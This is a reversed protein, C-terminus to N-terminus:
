EHYFAPANRRDVNEPNVKDPQQVGADEASRESDDPLDAADLGNQSQLGDATARSRRLHESCGTGVAQWGMFPHVDAAFNM